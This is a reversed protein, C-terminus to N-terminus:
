YIIIAGYRVHFEKFNKCKRHDIPMALERMMYRAVAIPFLVEGFYPPLCELKSTLEEADMHLMINCAKASSMEGACIEGMHMGTGASIPKAWYTHLYDLMHDFVQCAQEGTMAGRGVPITSLLHLVHIHKAYKM